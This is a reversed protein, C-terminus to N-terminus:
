CDESHYFEPRVNQAESEEDDDNEHDAHCGFICDRCKETCAEM